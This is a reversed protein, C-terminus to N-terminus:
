TRRQDLKDRTRCAFDFYCCVEVVDALRTRARESFVLGVAPKGLMGEPMSWGPISSTSASSGILSVCALAMAMLQITLKMRNM